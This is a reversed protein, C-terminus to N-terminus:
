APPLENDEDRNQRDSSVDSDGSGDSEDLQAQTDPDPYNRDWMRRREPDELEEFEDAGEDISEEIQDRNRGLSLTTTFLNRMLERASHRARYENGNYLAKLLSELSGAAGAYTLVLFGVNEYTPSIGLGALVAGIGGGLIITSCYKWVDFQEPNDPDLAVYAFISSAYLMAGGIGLLISNILDTVM